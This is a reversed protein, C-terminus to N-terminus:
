VVSRYSHLHPFCIEGAQGDIRRVVPLRGSKKSPDDPLQNDRFLTMLLYNESTATIKIQANM